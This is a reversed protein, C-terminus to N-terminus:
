VIVVWILILSCILSVVINRFELNVVRAAAVWVAGAIGVNEILLIVVTQASIGSASVKLCEVGGGGLGAGSVASELVVVLRRLLLSGWIRLLM